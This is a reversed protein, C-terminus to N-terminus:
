RKKNCVFSAGLSRMKYYRETSESGISHLFQYVSSDYYRLKTRPCTYQAPLGTVDCLKNHICLPVRTLSLYPHNTSVLQNYLQKFSKYRVNTELRTSLKYKPLVKQMPDIKQMHKNKQM